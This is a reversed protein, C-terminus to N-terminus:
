FCICVTTQEPPALIVKDHPVFIGHNIKCRFYRKFFIFYINLLKSKSKTKIGLIM